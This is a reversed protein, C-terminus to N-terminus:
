MCGAKLWAAAAEGEELARPGPTVSSCRSTFRRDPFGDRSVFAEIRWRGSLSLDYSEIPCHGERLRAPQHMDVRRHGDVFRLRATM